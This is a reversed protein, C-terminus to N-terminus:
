IVLYRGEGFAIAPAHPNQPDNPISASGIHFPEGDREGTATVFVGFVEHSNAAVDRQVWVALNGEIRADTQDFAAVDVKRRTVEREPGPTIVASAQTVLLLTGILVLNLNM